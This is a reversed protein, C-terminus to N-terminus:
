EVVAKLYAVQLRVQMSETGLELIKTEWEEQASNRFDGSQPM